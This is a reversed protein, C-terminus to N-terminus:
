GVIVSEPRQGRIIAYGVKIKNSCSCASTISSRPRVWQGKAHTHIRNRLKVVNHMVFYWHIYILVDSAILRTIYVFMEGSGKFSLFDM